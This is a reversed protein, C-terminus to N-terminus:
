SCINEAATDRQGCRRRVQHFRDAARQFDSHIVRVNNTLLRGRAGGIDVRELRNFQLHCRQVAPLRALSWCQLDLM